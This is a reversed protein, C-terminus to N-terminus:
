ERKKNFNEFTVEWLDGNSGSTRRLLVHLSTETPLPTMQLLVFAQASGGAKEYHSTCQQKQSYCWCPFISGNYSQETYWHSVRDLVTLGLMFTPSSWKQDRCACLQTHGCLCRCTWWTTGWLENTGSCKIVVQM